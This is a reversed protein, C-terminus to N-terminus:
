RDAPDGVRIVVSELETDEDLALTAEGRLGSAQTARFTFLGTGVLSLRATGDDGTELDADHDPGGVHVRSRNWGSADGVVRLNVHKTRWDLELETAQVADPRVTLSPLLLLRQDGSPLEFSLQLGARPVGALWFRGEHDVPVSGARTGDKSRFLIRGREVPPRGDLILRGDITTAATELTPPTM